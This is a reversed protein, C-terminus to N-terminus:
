CVKRRGVTERLLSRAFCKGRRRRCCPFQGVKRLPGRAGRFRVRGEHQTVSQTFRGAVVRFVVQGEGRGARKASALVRKRWCAANNRARGWSFAASVLSCASYLARGSFDSKRRELVCLPIFLSFVGRVALFRLPM